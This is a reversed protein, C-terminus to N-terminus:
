GEVEPLVIERWHTPAIGPSACEEFLYWDSNDTGDGRRFMIQSYGIWGEVRRRLEPLREAVPIWRNPDHKAIIAAMAEVGIEGDEWIEKAAEEYWSM